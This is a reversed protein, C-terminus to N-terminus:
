GNRAGGLPATELDRREAYARLWDPPTPPIERSIFWDDMVADLLLDLDPDAPLQRGSGSGISFGADFAARLRAREEISLEAYIM